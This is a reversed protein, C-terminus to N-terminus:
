IMGRNQFLQQAAMPNQPSVAAAMQMPDAYQPFTGLGATSPVVPAPQSAAAIAQQGVSQPPGGLVSATLGGEPSGTRMAAPMVSPQAAAQIPQEPSLAPTEQPQDQRLLGGARTLTESLSPGQAAEAVGEAAAETLGDAAAAGGLGLSGLGQQLMAGGAGFGVANLAADGASGGALLTGLGAGLAKPAASAILGGMAGSAGLAGAIGTGFAAPLMSGALSGLLPALLPVM